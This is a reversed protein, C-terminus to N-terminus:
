DQLGGSRTSRRMNNTTDKLNRTAKLLTNAEDFGTLVNERGGAEELIGGRELRKLEQFQTPTIDRQAALMGFERAAEPGREIGPVQGQRLRLQFAENELGQSRLVATALAIGTDLDKALIQEAALGLPGAVGTAAVAQTIQRFGALTSALFPFERILAPLGAKVGLTRLKIEEVDPGLVEAFEPSLSLTKIQQNLRRLSEAIATARDALRTGLKREVLDDPLAALKDLNRQIADTNRVLTAAVTIAEAGFIKQLKEADAQQGIQRLKDVFTGSLKIGEKEAKNLRLFVNRIGTFTKENRGGVQTATIISAAVDDFTGGLEKAAPLIDPLLVALDQFTVFGQEAAFFLRNQAQTVGGLEKGFVQFTKILATLNVDLDGGVLRTLQLGSKLLDDRITTSLNATGSQLNFLASAIVDESIGFAASLSLVQERIEGINQINEGLSLLPTIARDFAILQRESERLGSIVGRLAATAGATGVLGGVFSGVQRRSRELAKDWQKASRTTKKFQTDSKKQARVLKLVANVAKAEDAELVFQVNAVM